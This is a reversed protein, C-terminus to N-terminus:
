PLSCTSQERTRREQLPGYVKATDFSHSAANSAARIVSIAQQKDAALGYGFSM